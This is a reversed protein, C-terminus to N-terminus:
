CDSDNASILSTLLNCVDSSSYANERDHALDYKAQERFYGIAIYVASDITKPAISLMAAIHKDM